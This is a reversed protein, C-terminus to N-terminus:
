PAAPNRRPIRVLFSEHAVRTGDTGITFMKQGNELNYAFEEKARLERVASSYRPRGDSGTTVASEDFRGVTVLSKSADHYYYAEHGRSRLDRVWDVAAQVRERFEATNYTVGVQLTYVGDANALDWEPPGSATEGLRAVPRATLFPYRGEAPSLSRIYQIDANLEPSLVINDTKPDRRLMYRGYSITSQGADSRVELLDAKIRDLRRMGAALDEAVRRHDEGRFIGCEITWPEGSPEKKFWNLTPPPLSSDSSPGNKWRSLRDCGPAAVLLGTALPGLCVLFFVVRPIPVTM